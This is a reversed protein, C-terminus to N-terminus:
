SGFLVHCCTSFAYIEGCVLCRGQENLPASSWCHFLLGQWPAWPVCSSSVGAVLAGILDVFWALQICVAFCLMHADWLVASDISDKVAELACIFSVSVFNWWSTLFHTPMCDSAIKIWHGLKGTHLFKLSIRLLVKSHMYGKALAKRSMTVVILLTSFTSTSLILIDAVVQLTVKSSNLLTCANVCHLGLWLSAARRRLFILFIGPDTWMWVATLDILLTQSPSRQLLVISSAFALVFSLSNMRSVAMYTRHHATGMCWQIRVIMWSAAEDFSSRVWYWSMMTFTAVSCLSGM